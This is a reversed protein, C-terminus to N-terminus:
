KYCPAFFFFTPMKDLSIASKIGVKEEHMFLKLLKSKLQIKLKNHFLIQKSVRQQTCIKDQLGSM